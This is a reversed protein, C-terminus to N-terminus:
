FLLNKNQEMLCKKPLSFPSFKESTHMLELQLLSPKTLGIKVFEKLHFRYVNKNERGCDTM